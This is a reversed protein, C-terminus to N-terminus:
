CPVRPQAQQSFPWDKAEEPDMGSPMVEQQAVM